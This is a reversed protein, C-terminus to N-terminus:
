GYGRGPVGNHMRRSLSLALRLHEQVQDLALEMLEAAEAVLDPDVTELVTRITGSMMEIVVAGPDEGPYADAPLSEALDAAVDTLLVGTRILSLVFQDIHDQTDTSEMGILPKSPWRNVGWPVQIEDLKRNSQHRELGGAAVRHASARFRGPSNVGAPESV